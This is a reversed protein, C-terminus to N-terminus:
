VLRFTKALIDQYIRVDGDDYTVAHGLDDYASITGSYFTGGAWRVEVRRGLLVTPDDDSDYDALDLNGPPARPSVPAALARVRALLLLDPERRRRRQAAPPPPAPPALSRAVAAAAAGVAGESTEDAPRPPPAVAGEVEAALAPARPNPPPAAPPPAPADDWARHYPTLLGDGRAADPRDPPPGGGGAYTELWTLGAVADRASADRKCLKLLEEVSARVKGEKAGRLFSAEAVAAARGLGAGLRRHPIGGSTKPYGL